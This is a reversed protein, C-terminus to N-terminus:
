CQLWMSAICAAKRRKRRGAEPGLRCPRPRSRGYALGLPLNSPPPPIHPNNLMSMAIGWYAIWCEPDAKLAEEFIERSERYWFSHQYRM